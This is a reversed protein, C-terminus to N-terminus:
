GQKLEEQDTNPLFERFTLVVNNVEDIESDDGTLESLREHLDLAMRVLDIASQRKRTKGDLSADPTYHKM